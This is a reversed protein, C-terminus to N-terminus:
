VINWDTFSEALVGRIVIATHNGIFKNEAKPTSRYTTPIEFIFYEM